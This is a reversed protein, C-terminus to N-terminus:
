WKVLYNKYKMLIQLQIIHKLKQDNIMACITGIVGVKNGAAELMSKIIYSTSTKGCTGTIGITTLKKAPYKFYAASMFALARRSSKVKIVTVDENIEVDREIVIVKAGRRIADPIFNHSDVTTGITAIFLDDDYVNNSNDKIDKIETALSGKVLEYEVNKLIGSLKVMRRGGNPIDIESEYVTHSPGKMLVNNTKENWEVDLNGGIQEM